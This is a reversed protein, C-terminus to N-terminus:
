SLELPFDLIKWTILVYHLCTNKKKQIRKLITIIKFFLTKKFSNLLELGLWYCEWWRRLKGSKVKCSCINTTPMKRSSWFEELLFIRMNADLGGFMHHSHVLGNSLPAAYISAPPLFPFDMINHYLCNAKIIEGTVIVTINDQKHYLSVKRNKFSPIPFQANFVKWEYHTSLHWWM